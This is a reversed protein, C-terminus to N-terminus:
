PRRAERRRHATALGKRIERMAVPNPSLHEVVFREIRAPNLRACDRLAWGIAKAVFFEEDRWHNHALECVRDFDTQSKWGRQHGIAARILWRDGSESWTDILNAHGFRLCLPSVMASVLGDVSDWWPTSTLLQAGFTPLFDEDAVEGWHAILDYAAYHFEREPEAFLAIAAIGLENSTPKALMAWSARLAGRRDPASVGLFPAIDKM